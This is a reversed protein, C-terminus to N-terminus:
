PTIRTVPCTLLADYDARVDAPAPAHTPHELASAIWQQVRGQRQLYADTETPTAEFLASCPRPTVLMGSLVTTPLHGDKLDELNFSLQSSDDSWGNTGMRAYTLRHPLALGSGDLARYAYALDQQIPRMLGAARAPACVTPMQGSCSFEEHTPRFTGTAPFTVAQVVCAAAIPLLAAGGFINKRPVPQSGQWAIFVGAVIITCHTVIACVAATPVRELGLHTGESHAIGFMASALDTSFTSLVLPTVLTLAAALIPASYGPVLSGAILGVAVAAGTSALLEPLLWPDLGALGHQTRVTVVVGVVVLALAGFVWAYIAAAPLLTSRGGRATSRSLDALGPHFRRAQDYAVVAAVLPAVLAALSGAYRSGWQADLHWSPDSHLFWTLFVTLSLALPAGLGRRLWVQSPMM